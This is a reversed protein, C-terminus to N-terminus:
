TSMNGFQVLMYKPGDGDMARAPIIIGIVSVGMRISVENASPM